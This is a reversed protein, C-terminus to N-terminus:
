RNGNDQSSRAKARRLIEKARDVDAVNDRNRAAIEGASRASVELQEGLNNNYDIAREASERLEHLNSDVRQVRGGDTNRRGLLFAGIAALVAAITAFVTKLTANMDERFDGTDKGM